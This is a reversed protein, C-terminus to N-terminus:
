LLKISSEMQEVKNQWAPELDLSHLEPTQDETTRRGGSQQKRTQIIPDFGLPQPLGQGRKRKVQTPASEASSQGLGLGPIVRLISGGRNVYMTGDRLFVEGAESMTLDRDSIDAVATIQRSFAPLQRSEPSLM